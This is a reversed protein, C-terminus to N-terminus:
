QFCSRSETVDIGCPEPGKSRDEWVKKVKLLSRSLGLIQLHRGKGALQNTALYSASVSTRFRDPGASGALNIAKPCFQKDTAM